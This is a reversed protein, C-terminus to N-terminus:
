FWWEKEYMKKRWENLIAKREKKRTNKREKKKWEFNAKNRKRIIKRENKMWFHIEKKKLLKEKKMLKFNCKKREKRTNKREEKM